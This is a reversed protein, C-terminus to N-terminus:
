TRVKWFLLMGVREQTKKTYSNATNSGDEYKDIGKLQTKELTAKSEGNVINDVINPNKNRMNIHDRM